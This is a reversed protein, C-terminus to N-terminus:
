QLIGFAVRRASFGFRDVDRQFGANAIGETALHITCFAGEGHLSKRQCLERPELIEPAKESFSAKSVIELQTGISILRMWYRPIIRRM